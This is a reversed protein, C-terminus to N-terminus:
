ISEKSCLQQNKKLGSACAALMVTVCLKDHGTSALAVTKSGKLEITSSGTCDYQVSTEDAAIIDRQSISYTEYYKRLFAYFSVLKPVLDSPLKQSQHTKPRVSLDYRKLFNHCWGQSANFSKYNESQAMEFATKM